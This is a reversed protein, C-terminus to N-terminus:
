VVYLLRNDHHRNDFNEMDVYPSNQFGQPGKSM